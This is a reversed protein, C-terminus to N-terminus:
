EDLTFAHNFLTTNDPRTDSVMTLSEFNNFFKKLTNGGDKKSVKLSRRIEEIPKGARRKSASGAATV